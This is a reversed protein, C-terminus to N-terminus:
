GFYGFCKVINDFHEVIIFLDRLVCKGTGCPLWGQPIKKTRGVNRAIAFLFDASFKATKLFFLIKALHFSCRPLIAKTLKAIASDSQM